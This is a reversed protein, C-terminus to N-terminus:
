TNSEKSTAFWTHLIIAASAKDIDEKNIKKRTGQARMSKLIEYAAASSYSEDVTEVPLQYRQKLDDCFSNILKQIRNDNQTQHTVRGVILTSPQWQQLLSDIKDWPIGASPVTLTTLPNATGIATLGIAMGIRREGYDFGIVHSRQPNNSRPLNSNPVNSM